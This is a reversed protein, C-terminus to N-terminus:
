DQHVIEVAGKTPLSSALHALEDRARAHEDAVLAHGQAVVDDGLFLRGFARLIGPGTLDVVLQIAVDDTLVAGLLRQRDRDEVVVLPDALVALGAVHLNLLAVDQQESGGAAALGQQDLRQGLLQIDGERHRVGGRQGLGTVDPLVHVADDLRQIAVGAVVGLLGAAADHADVLDVLDGALAATWRHRAVHRSFADLLRQELDQFALLGRDRGVASAVTGLLLQNLDVGRVDQEDARSGEVADLLQHPAPDALPPEAEAGADLLGLLGLVLQARM